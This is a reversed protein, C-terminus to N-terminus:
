TVGVEKVLVGEGKSHIENLIVCGRDFPPPVAKLM